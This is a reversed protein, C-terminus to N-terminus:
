GQRVKDMLWDLLPRLTGPINSEGVEVHHHRDHDEITIDYQFRDPQAAGSIKEPLHFFDATDVLRKLTQAESSPLTATDVTTTM